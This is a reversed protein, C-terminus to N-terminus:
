TGDNMIVTGLAGGAIAGFLLAHRATGDILSASVGSKVADICALVKPIMGASIEGSSIYQMAQFISLSSVQKGDIWVGSVNTLLIMREAGLAEAVRCAATDANINTWGGNEQRGISSIVPIMGKELADTLINTNLEIIEGVHGLSIDKLETKFLGATCDMAKVEAHQLGCVISTNIKALVEVVVDLTDQCTVRLGNLTKKEIGKKKLGKDIEPGGGHVLVVNSGLQRLFAVDKLVAAKMSGDLMANGGYKVVVLDEIQSKM